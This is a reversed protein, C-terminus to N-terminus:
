MKSLLDIGYISGNTNDRVSINYYVSSLGLTNTCAV